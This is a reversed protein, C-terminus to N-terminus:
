TGEELYKRLVHVAAEDPTCSFHVPSAEKALRGALALALDMDEVNWHLFEMASFLARHGEKETVPRLINERGQELLIIKKLPLIRNKCIGSTGCAMYGGTYWRGERSFLLARDGNVVEAGAYYRWLEAQTSKGTQSPATFLIGEGERSIYSAHIVACGRQLLKHHLGAAGLFTAASMTIQQGLGEEVYVRINGRSFLEELYVGYAFRCDKWRRLLVGRDGQQRIEYTGLNLRLEWQRLFSLDGAVCDIVLPEGAPEGSYLFPETLFDDQLVVPGPDLLVDLEGIRYHKMFVEISEKAELSDYWMGVSYALKKAM